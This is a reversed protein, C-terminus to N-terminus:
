VQNASERAKLFRRLRSYRTFEALNDHSTIIAHFARGGARRRETLGAPEEAPWVKTLISRLRNYSDDFDAQGARDKVVKTLAAFNQFATISKQDGLCSFDFSNSYIRWGTHDDQAYIDLLAEDTSLEREDLKRRREGSRKEEVEVTTRHLRGAVILVIEDWTVTEKMQGRRGLGILSGDTFKMTRLDKPPNGLNLEEDTVVITEVGSVSFRNSFLEAEAPDVASCVPAGKSSSSLLAELEDSTLSTMNSLDPIVARGIESNLIVVHSLSKQEPEPKAVLPALDLATPSSPALPVLSTERSGELAVGCYLCNSRTPPNARACGSCQIMESATFARRDKPASDPFPTENDATM